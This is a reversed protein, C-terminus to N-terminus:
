HLRTDPFPRLRKELDYLFLCPHHGNHCYGRGCHHSAALHIASRLCEFPRPTRIGFFWNSRTKPLYNGMILFLVSIAGVIFTPAMAMDAASVEGGKTMSYGVLASVLVMLVMSGIWIALYAKGSKRINTQRPDIKVAVALVLGTLMTLGPIMWVLRRAEAPTAFGDAEGKYNWHVPIQGTDPLANMTMFAIIGSILTAIATAILGTRIM